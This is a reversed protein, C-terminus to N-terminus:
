MFLRTTKESEMRLYASDPLKAKLQIIAGTPIKYDALSLKESLDQNAYVLRMEDPYEFGQLETATTKLVAVTDFCEIAIPLLPGKNSPQILVFYSETNNVAIVQASSTQVCGM